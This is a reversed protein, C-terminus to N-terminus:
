QENLTVKQCQCQIFVLEMTWNLGEFVQRTNNTIRDNTGSCKTLKCVSKLYSAIFEKAWNWKDTNAYFNSYNAIALCIQM